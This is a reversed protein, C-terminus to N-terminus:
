NLRSEFHYLVWEINHYQESTLENIWFTNVTAVCQYIRFASTDEIILRRVSPNLTYNSIEVLRWNEEITEAVCTDISILDVYSMEQEAFGGAPVTLEIEVKAPEAQDATPVFEISRLQVPYDNLNEVVLRLGSQLNANSSEGWASSYFAFKVPSDDTPQAFSSWPVMVLVLALFKDM